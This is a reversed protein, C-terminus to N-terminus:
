VVGLLYVVTFIFIWVIDLFHWFLGWLTLKQVLGKSLGRSRLYITVVIIWFLGVLIHMGHAGVLTFYSSLFASRIPGSGDAILRAFESIEIGLFGLGLLVTAAIYTYVQKLRGKKAALVAIGSTLNSGLLILTELFVYPLDFIDAPGPGGFTKGKLVSYSAFLGAFMMLDTMLYVWFGFMAKDNNEKAM